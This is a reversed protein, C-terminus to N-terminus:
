GNIGDEMLKNYLDANYGSVRSVMGHQNVKLLTPIDVVGYLMAVDPTEKINVVEFEKLKRKAWNVAMLSNLCNDKIVVLTKMVTGGRLISRIFPLIYNFYGDLCNYYD